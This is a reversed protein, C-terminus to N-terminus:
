LLVVQLASASAIDDAAQLLALRQLVDLTPRWEAPHVERYTRTHEDWAGLGGFQDIPNNKVIFPFAWM